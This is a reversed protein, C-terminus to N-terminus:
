SSSAFPVSPRSRPISRNRSPIGRLASPRWTDTNTAFWDELYSSVTPTSTTLLQGDVQRGALRKLLKVAKGQTPAFASKRRRKGDPGRGLDVRAEWRKDQRQRISGEGRARKAVDHDKRSRSLGQTRPASLRVLRRMYTRSRCRTSCFIKKTVKLFLRPCDAAACASLKEAGGTEMVRVVQYLFGDLPSGHVLHPCGGRRADACVDARSRRRCRRVGSRVGQTAHPRAGAAGPPLRSRAPTEVWHGPTERNIFCQVDWAAQRLPRMPGHALDTRAVGGRVTVRGGSGTITRERWGETIRNVVGLPRRRMVSLTISQGYCTWLMGRPRLRVM